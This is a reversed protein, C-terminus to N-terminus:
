LFILTIRLSEINKVIYIPRKDNLRWLENLVCYITEERSRGRVFVLEEYRQDEFEDQFHEDDVIFFEIGISPNQTKRRLEIDMQGSSAIAVQERNYIALENSMKDIRNQLELFSSEQEEKWEQLFYHEYKDPAITKLQELVAYIIKITYTEAVEYPIEYKNM